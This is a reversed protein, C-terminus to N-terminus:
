GSVLGNADPGSWVAMAGEGDDIVFADAAIQALMDARHLIADFHLRQGVAQRRQGPRFMRGIGHTLHPSAISTFAGRLLRSAWQIGNVALRCNLALGRMNTLALPM